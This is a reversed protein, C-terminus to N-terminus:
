RFFLGGLCSSSISAAKFIGLWAADDGKLWHLIFSIFSRLGALWDNALWAALWASGLMFGRLVFFFRQWGAVARSNECRLRKLAFARLM